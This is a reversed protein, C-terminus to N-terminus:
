VAMRTPESAEARKPLVVTFTTGKEETSEVRISGGFADVVGKVLALGLGWGKLTRGKKKWRLTSFLAAQDSAPIPDGFNHLEIVANQESQRLNVTIPTESRHYKFANNVLNEIARRLYEENWLGLVPGVSVVSFCDGFVLRMDAVVDQVIADLDCESLPLALKGGSEIRSRDHIKEIM